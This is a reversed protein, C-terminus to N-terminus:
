QEEVSKTAVDGWINFNSNEDAFFIEIM